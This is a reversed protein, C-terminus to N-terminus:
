DTTNLSDKAEISYSANTQSPFSFSFENGLLSVVTIKPPTVVMFYNTSRLGIDAIGSIVNIQGGAGAWVTEFDVTYTGSGTGIIAVQYNGGIPSPIQITKIG